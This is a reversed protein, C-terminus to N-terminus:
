RENLVKIAESSYLGVYGSNKDQDMLNRIPTDFGPRSLNPFDVETSISSATVNHDSKLPATAPQIPSKKPVEQTRARIVSEDHDSKSSVIEAQIPTQQLAEPTRERIVSKIANIGEPFLIYHQNQM